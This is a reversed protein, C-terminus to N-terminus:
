GVYNTHKKLPSVEMFAMMVDLALYTRFRTILDDVTIGERLEIANGEEAEKFYKSYDRFMGYTSERSLVLVAKEGKQSLYKIVEAGYEELEAFNVIVKEDSKKKDGLIEIIANAALDEIGIYFCM